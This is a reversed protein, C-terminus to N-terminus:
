RGASGDEVTVAVESMVAKKSSSSSGSIMLVGSNPSSLEGLADDLDEFVLFDIDIEEILLIVLPHAEPRGQLVITAAPDAGLINMQKAMVGLRHLADVTDQAIPESISGLFVVFARDLRHELLLLAPPM